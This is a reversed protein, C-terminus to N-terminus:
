YLHIYIKNILHFLQLEMLNNLEKQSLDQYFFVRQNLKKDKVYNKCEELCDGTGVLILDEIIESAIKNYAKLLTIQNKEKKFTNVNM